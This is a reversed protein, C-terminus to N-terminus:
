KGTEAKEGEVVRAARLIRTAFDRAQDPQLKVFRRWTAGGITLIGSLIVAGGAPDPQVDLSLSGLGSLPFLLPRDLM